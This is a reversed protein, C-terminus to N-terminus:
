TTKSITGEGIKKGNELAVTYAAKDPVTVATGDGATAAVTVAFTYTMDLTGGNLVIQDADSTMTWKQGSPGAVTVRVTDATIRKANGSKNRVTLALRYSLMYVKKKVSGLGLTGESATFSGAPTGVLEIGQVIVPNDKAGGASVIYGVTGDKNTFILLPMGDEDLGIRIGAESAATTINLMGGEIDVRMSKDANETHVSGATLSGYRDVAATTVGDNNRVTFNDATATITGAQIDIGTDLLGAALGRDEVFTAAQATWDTMHAGKELKPQAIWARAGANQLRGVICSYVLSANETAAIADATQTHFHVWYRQWADALTVAVASWGNATTVGQVSETYVTSADSNNHLYVYMRGTGRATFSLTYDTDAECTLGSWTLLDVQKGTSAGTVVACGGYAGDQVTGKVTLFPTGGTLLLEKSGGLMNGGVYDRDQESLSWGTYTDGECLMPQCLRCEATAGKEATTLWVAVEVFESGAAEPIAFPLTMLEWAGTAAPTFDGTAVNGKRAPTGDGAKDKYYVEATVAGKTDGKKVLCSLLYTKGRAVRINTVSGTGTCWLGAKPQTSGSYTVVAHYCNMGDAGGLMETRSSGDADAYIGEGPRYLASGRILNTRGVLTRGVKLSLDRATQRIESTYRALENANKLPLGDVTTSLETYRSELGSVATELGGWVASMEVHVAVTARYTKKDAAYVAAVTVAADTYPVTHGDATRRAVATVTVLGATSVAATCNVAREVIFACAATVDATGKMVRLQATNGASVDATYSGDTNRVAGLVVAAPAATVTVADAGADGKDGKDGMMGVSYSTVTEGDMYATVVRTWLYQGRPVTPISASWGDKPPTTGQESVAYTVATDKIVGSGGATMDYTECSAVRWTLPADATAEAGGNLYLHGGTSFSGNFGCTYMYMYEAFRGTGARGTLWTVKWDTGMNNQANTLTYGVPIKAIVRRVFVANARSQVVQYFGGRGPTAKGATKVEMEYVARNYPNDASKAVRAITVAGNAANNYVNCGNMGSDFTLDRYLSKGNALSLGPVGQAGDKGDNVVAITIQGRAIIM